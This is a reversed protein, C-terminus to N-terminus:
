LKAQIDSPGPAKNHPTHSLIHEFEENTLEDMVGDFAHDPISEILEFRHEWSKWLDPKISRTRTWGQAKKNVLKKIEDPDDHFEGKEIVHDLVIRQRKRNMISKIMAGKNLDFNQQRRIINDVIQRQQQLRIRARLTSRYEKKINLLEVILKDKPLTMLYANVAEPKLQKWKALLQMVNNDHMDANNVRLQKIIDVVIKVLKYDICEKKTHASRAGVKRKPLCEAAQLVTEKIILWM